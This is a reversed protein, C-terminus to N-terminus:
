QSPRKEHKNGGRWLRTGVIVTGVALVGDLFRLLSQVSSDGVIAIMAALRFVTPTVQVGFALAAPVLMVLPPVRLFMPPLGFSSPVVIVITVLLITLDSRHDLRISSQLFSM